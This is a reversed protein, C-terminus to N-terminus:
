DKGRKFTKAIFDEGLPADAEIAADTDAESPETTADALEVTAFEEVAPTHSRSRNRSRKSPAKVDPEHEIKYGHQVLAAVTEPHLSEAVAVGDVFEVGIFKQSGQAPHPHIIRV